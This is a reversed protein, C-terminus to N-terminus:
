WKRWRSVRSLSAEHWLRLRYFGFLRRLTEFVCHSLNKRNRFRLKHFAFGLVFLNPFGLFPPALRKLSATANKAPAASVNEEIHNRGNGFFCEVSFSITTPRYWICVPRRGFILSSPVGVVNIRSVAVPSMVRRSGPFGGYKQFGLYNM